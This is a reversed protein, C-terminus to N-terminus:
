NQSVVAMQEAEVWHQLYSAATNLLTEETHAPRVATVIADLVELFMAKQGDPITRFLTLAQQANLTLEVGNKTRATITRTGNTCREALQMLRRKYREATYM